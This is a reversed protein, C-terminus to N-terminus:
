SCNGLRKNARLNPFASIPRCRRTAAPGIWRGMVLFGAADSFTPLPSARLPTRNPPAETTPREDGKTRQMAKIFPEISLVRVISASPM